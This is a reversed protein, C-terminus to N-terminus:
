TLLGKHDEDEVLGLSEPPAFRSSMANVYAALMKEAQDRNYYPGEIATDRTQFYWLGQDQFIRSSRFHAKHGIDDKRKDAM